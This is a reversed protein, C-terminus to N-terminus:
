LREPQSYMMDCIALPDNVAVELPARGGFEACPRILWLSLSPVRVNALYHLWEMLWPANIIHQIMEDSVGTTVLTEEFIERTLAIEEEERSLLLCPQRSALTYASGKRSCGLCRWSGDDDVLLQTHKDGSGTGM